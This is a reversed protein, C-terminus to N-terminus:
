KGKSMQHAAYIGVPILAAPGLAALAAPAAAGMGGMLGAAGAAEAGAIAAGTGAGGLAAATGAEAALPAAGALGTGVGATLGSATAPATLAFTEAAPAAATLPVATMGTPAATALPGVQPVMQATQYATKGAAWMEPAKNIAASQAMGLMPDQPARTPAPAQEQSPQITAALPATPAQNAWAWPDQQAM